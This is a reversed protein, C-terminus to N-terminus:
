RQPNKRRGALGVRVAALFTPVRTWPTQAQAVAAKHRVQRPVRAQCTIAGRNKRNCRGWPRAWFRGVAQRGRAPALARALNAEAHASEIRVSDSDPRFGDTRSDRQRTEPGARCNELRTPRPRGTCNGLTASVRRFRALDPPGRRRRNAYRRLSCVQSGPSAKPRGAEVLKRGPFRGGQVRVPRTPAVRQAGRAQLGPVGSSYRFGRFPRGQPQPVM